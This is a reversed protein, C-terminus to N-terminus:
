EDEQEGWRQMRGYFDALDEATGRKVTGKQKVLKADQELVASVVWRRIAMNHSKSKYGKDEIYEDFFRICKDRMDEGFDEALKSFEDDTLMVHGFEGHKHKKKASSDATSSGSYIDERSKDVRIEEERIEETPNVKLKSNVKSNVKSNPNVSSDDTEEDCEAVRQRQCKRKKAMYDRMYANRKELSDMTQHKGWNPIVYVGDMKEVMGYEEFVDLATQVIGADMGFVSAFMSVTYPKNKGLIFVGENNKKGAFTLLKMWVVFISAFDEKHEEGILLMKDDEFIDTAIKIWKVEAM